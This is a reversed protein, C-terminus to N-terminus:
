PKTLRREVCHVRQRLDTCASCRRAVGLGLGWLAGLRGWLANKWGLCCLTASVLTQRKYNAGNETSDQATGNLM